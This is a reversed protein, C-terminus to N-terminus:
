SRPSSILIVLNSPSTTAAFPLQVRFHARWQPNLEDLLERALCTHRQRPEYSSLLSYWRLFYLPKPLAIIGVPQVLPSLPLDLFSTQFAPDVLSRLPDYSVEHFPWLLPRSNYHTSTLVACPVARTSRGSHLAWKSCPCGVSAQRGNRPLRGVDDASMRQRAQKPRSRGPICCYVRLM